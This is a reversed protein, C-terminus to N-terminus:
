PVPDFGYRGGPRCSCIRTIGLSLGKKIGYKDVAEITYQSCSPIFRCSPKIMPSILVQYLRILGIVIKKPAVEEAGKVAIPRPPV